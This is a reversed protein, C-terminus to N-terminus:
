EKLVAVDHFLLSQQTHPTLTRVVIDVIVM